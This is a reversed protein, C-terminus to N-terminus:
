GMGKIVEDYMTLVKAASAKWQDGRVQEAVFLRGHVKRYRAAFPLNQAKAPLHRSRM